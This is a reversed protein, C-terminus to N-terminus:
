SAPLNADIDLFLILTIDRDALVDLSIQSLYRYYDDYVGILFIDSKSYYCNIARVTESEMLTDQVLVENLDYLVTLTTDSM